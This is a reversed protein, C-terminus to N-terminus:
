TTLHDPLLIQIGNSYKFLLWCTEPPFGQSTLDLRQRAKAGPLVLFGPFPADSAKTKRLDRCSSSWFSKLSCSSVGVWLSLVTGASRVLLPCCQSRVASAVREAPEPGKQILHRLCAEPVGPKEFSSSSVLRDKVIRALGAQLSCCNWVSWHNPAKRLIEDQWTTKWVRFVGDSDTM